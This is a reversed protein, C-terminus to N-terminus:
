RSIKPRCLLPCIFLILEMASLREATIGPSSSTHHIVVTDILKREIDFYGKENDLYVNNFQLQKEFFSYVKEKLEEYEGKQSEWLEQISELLAPVEKYWFPEKIKASWEKENFPM